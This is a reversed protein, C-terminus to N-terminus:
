LYDIAELSYSKYHIDKLSASVFNIAEDISALDRQIVISALEGYSYGLNALYNAKEQM